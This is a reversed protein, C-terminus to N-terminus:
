KVGALALAYIKKCGLRKLQKSLGSISAGTTIVDDVILISRYCVKSYAQSLNFQQDIHILREARSLEKQHQENKRTVPQWIPLRHHKALIQTLLIAQNYGREKLRQQSIPMPVLAQVKPLQLTKLIDEFIPLHHLANKYKFNQILKNLPYQYNGAIQVEIEQRILTQPHIALHEWCDKCTHAHLLQTYHDCLTCQPFLRSFM